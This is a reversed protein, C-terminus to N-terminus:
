LPIAEALAKSAVAAKLNRAPVLDVPRGLIESIERELGILDLLSAQESTDVLLDVDSTDTDDGRAVSGFVRVDGMGRRRAADIVAGRCRRLRRGMPTDPLGRAEDPRPVIDVRLHHGSAEVLKTLMSLGPERRGNEYASVVPQSVGARRALEGQSMGARARAERVLNGVAESM